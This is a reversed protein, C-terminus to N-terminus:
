VRDSLESDTSDPPIPLNAVLETVGFSDNLIGYVEKDAEEVTINSKDLKESMTLMMDLFHLDFNPDRAGQYLKPFNEKFEPYKQAHFSEPKNITKRIDAVITKLNM